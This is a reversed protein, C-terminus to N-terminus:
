LLFYFFLFASISVTVISYHNPFTKSPYVPRLFRTYTGCQELVYAFYLSYSLCLIIITSQLRSQIYKGNYAQGLFLLPFSWHLYIYMRYRGYFIQINQQDTFFLFFFFDGITM